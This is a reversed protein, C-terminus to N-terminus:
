QAALGDILTAARLFDRCCERSCFVSPQQPQEPASPSIADLLGSMVQRPQEVTM